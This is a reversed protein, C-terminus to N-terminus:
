FVVIGEVSGLSPDVSSGIARASDLAADGVALIDQYPRSELWGGGNKQGLFGHVDRAVVCGQLGATAVIRANQGSRNGHDFRHHRQDQGVM